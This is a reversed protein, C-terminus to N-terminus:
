VYLRAATTTLSKFSLIVFKGLVSTDKQARFSNKNM